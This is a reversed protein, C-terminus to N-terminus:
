AGKGVIDLTFTAALYEIAGIAVIDFAVSAVRVSDFTQYTGAELVAKFSETGSGACYKAIRDRTTRTDVKGVLAVVSPDMRDMGRGYGGDFTLADPYTVVASPAPPPKDPPYGFVRLGAITDLQDAVEQMVAGMDM